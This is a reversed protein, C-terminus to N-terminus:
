PVMKWRINMETWSANEMGKKLVFFQDNDPHVEMGIEEGPVLNMLM